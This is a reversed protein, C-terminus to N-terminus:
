LFILILHHHLEEPQDLRQRLHAWVANSCVEFEFPFLHVFPTRAVQCKLLLITSRRRFRTFNSQSLFSQWSGTMGILWIYRVQIRRIQSSRGFWRIVCTLFKTHSITPM